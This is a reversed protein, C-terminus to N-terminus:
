VGEKILKETRKKQNSVASAKRLYYKDVVMKVKFISYTIFIVSYFVLNFNRIFGSPKSIYVMLVQIFVMAYFIYAFEQLNKWKKASMKKRIANFSTVFLPLMIGIAFIGALFMMLNTWLSLGKTMLILKSNLIFAFLYHVNHPITFIGGIISLQARNIRLKKSAKYKMDLVGMYMVLIFIAGGLAGSDIAKMFQSLVPIYKVSYGSLMLIAHIIAMVSIVTSVIYISGSYKRIKDSFIYSFFVVFILCVEITM